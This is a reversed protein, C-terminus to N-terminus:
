IKLKTTTDNLYYVAWSNVRDDVVISAVGCMWLTKLANGKKPEFEVFIYESSFLSFVFFNYYNVCAFFVNFFIYTRYKENALGMFINLLNSQQGPINSFQINYELYKKTKKKILIARWKTTAKANLTGSRLFYSSYICKHWTKKSIYNTPRALHVTNISVCHKCVYIHIQTYYVSHIFLHALCLLLSDPSRLFIKWMCSILRFLFQEVNENPINKRRECEICKITTTKNSSTRTASAITVINIKNKKGDM